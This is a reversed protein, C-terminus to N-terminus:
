CTWVERNHVGLFSGLSHVRTGKPELRGEVVIFTRCRLELTSGQFAVDDDDDDERPKGLRDGM